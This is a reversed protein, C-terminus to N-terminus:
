SEAQPLSFTFVTGVKETSIVDISEGHATIIEKVISLGMGNGKKDRGRSTDTKYFRDWVKKISAKPIGEGHDKVSVFVKKQRVSTSICIASGAYSFKIANDILNYLVRNIKDPDAMVFEQPEEFNLEFSLDKKDCENEYSACVQKIAGNIDFRKRHILARSDRGLTLMEETLKTLRETEGIVRKIYKGYLEQPITGDLIAELYGRISTLPSRFDHSVNSIFDRQYKDMNSQEEAMFNLTKALYSMEDDSRGEPIRYELNGQAYERAGNTIRTIPKYVYFHFIFLVALGLLYVIASCVYVVVLLRDKEATITQQLRHVIVYGIVQQNRTVPSCVSIVPAGYLDSCGGNTFYTSVSPDFGPILVTPNKETTDFTIRGGPSVLWFDEGAIRAAHSLSFSSIENVSRMYVPGSILEDAILDAQRTMERLADKSLRTRLLVDSFLSVAFFAVAGVAAFGIIFKKYLSGKM